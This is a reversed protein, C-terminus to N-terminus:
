HKLSRREPESVREPAGTPTAVADGPPAVAISSAAAPAQVPSAAPVVTVAARSATSNVRRPAPARATLEGLRSRMAKWRKGRVRRWSRSLTKSAQSLVESQREALRGMLFLTAPPLGNGCDEALMALRHKAMYADQHAGLREQMRRLAKLIEEAPKGFMRGGSEIAYRLQKARRRVVHFEEMSANTPLKRVTKRLKRFRQRVRQPMVTLASRGPATGGAGADTALSLDELWRRTPAADLLRVVRAHARAAEAQLRQRLPEAVASEAEPLDACYRALEALQVDLDRAAGLARLVGKATKRAGMISAPLQHKFLALTADIRRVTVRLQHLEEPEQGQRALPEHRRWANLLRRLEGLALEHASIGTDMRPEAVLTAAAAKVPTTPEAAADRASQRTMEPIKMVQSPAAYLRRKEATYCLPPRCLRAM